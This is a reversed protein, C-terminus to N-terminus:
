ASRSSLSTVSIASDIFNGPFAFKPLFLRDDDHEHIMQLPGTPAKMKGVFGHAINSALALMGSTQQAQVGEARAELLCHFSRSATITAEKAGKLLEMVSFM